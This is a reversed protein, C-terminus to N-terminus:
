AAQRAQATNNFSERALWATLDSERYRVNRGIKIFAPGGGNRRWGELTKVSFGIRGAVQEASLCASENAPVIRNTNSM